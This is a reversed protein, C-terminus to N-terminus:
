EIYNKNFWSPIMCNGDELGSADMISKPIWFDGSGDNLLYAKETEHTISVKEHNMSNTHSSDIRQVTYGFSPEPFPNSWPDLYLEDNLITELENELAMQAFEGRPWFM